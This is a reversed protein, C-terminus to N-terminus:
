IFLELIYVVLSTSLAVVFLNNSFWATIIGIALAAIGTYVSETAYIIAPFTMVTLTVYPLYYLFSKIFRSKIPKKFVTLPIVRLAYTVAAIIFIYIYVNNKM